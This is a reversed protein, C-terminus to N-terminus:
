GAGALMEVMGKNLQPIFSVSVAPEDIGKFIKYGNIFRPMEFPVPILSLLLLDRSRKKNRFGIDPICKGLRIIKKAPCSYNYLLQLVSKTV